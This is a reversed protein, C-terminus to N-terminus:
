ILTTRQSCALGYYGEFCKCEGTGYQCSGRGSCEINEVYSGVKYDTAPSVGNFVSTKCVPLKYAIEFVRQEGDAVMNASKFNLKVGPFERLSIADHGVIPLAGAATYGTFVFSTATTPLPFIKLNAPTLENPKFRHENIEYSSSGTSGDALDTIGDYFGVKYFMLDAADDTGDKPDVVIIEIRADFRELGDNQNNLKKDAPLRPDSDATMLVIKKSSHAAFADANYNLPVMNVTSSTSDTAGANTTIAATYDVAADHGVYRVAFPMKVHPRCGEESCGYASPCQLLNQTGMLNGNETDATYTIRVSTALKACAQSAPCSYANARNAPTLVSAEVDGVMKNPLAKLSTVISSAFDAPTTSFVNGVAPASYNAGFHDQFILLIQEDSYQAVPPNGVGSSAIMKNIDAAMAPMNSTVSTSSPVPLLAAGNKTPGVISYPISLDLQQSM